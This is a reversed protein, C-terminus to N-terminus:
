YRIGTLFLVSFDVSPGSSIIDEGFSAQYFFEDILGPKERVINGAIGVNLDIVPDSLDTSDINKFATTNGSLQVLASLYNTIQFEFSQGFTFFTRKTVASLNNVSGLVTAGLQTTFCFRKLNKQALVSIGADVHGSSLGKSALGTPLKIYPTIALKFPLSIKDSLLYKGRLTIDSLGFPSQAYNILTVGNQVVQYSFQGNAVLDRGANPVGLTSHYWQVFGDLFGGTNSIFPIEIKVDLEDSIGYSFTLATRWLEMDLNTQTTGSQDFEFLNSFTTALTAEHQNDNLTQPSEMPMALLQLYLPNQTRTLLPGTPRPDTIRAHAPAAFFLAFLAASLRYKKIFHFFM